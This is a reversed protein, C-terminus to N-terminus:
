SSHQTPNAGWQALFYIFQHHAELSTRSSSLLVNSAPSGAQGLPLYDSAWLSPFRNKHAHHFYVWSIFQQESKSLRYIHTEQPYERVRTKNNFSEFLQSPKIETFHSCNIFSFSVLTSSDIISCFDMPDQTFQMTNATERCMFHSFSFGFNPKPLQHHLTLTAHTSSRPLASSCQPM